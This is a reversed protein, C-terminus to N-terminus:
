YPPPPQRAPPAWIIDSPLQNSTYFSQDPPHGSDGGGSVAVPPSQGGDEDKVPFKHYCPNNFTAAILYVTGASLLPGIVAGGVVQGQPGALSITFGNPLSSNELVITASISLINFTGHFTVTSAATNSPQKLTVNTVTGSGNLVCLGMNREECFRFISDIIDVGTPIELIYPSMSPKEVHDDRTKIIFTAHKPKNKSGPPRGRPRRVVEITAGDNASSSPATAVTSIPQPPLQHHFNQAHHLKAFM